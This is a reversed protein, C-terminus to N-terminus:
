TDIPACKEKLWAQEDSNLQPSLMEYVKHHYDNLWTVERDDLLKRDILTKDIPFLTITDFELFGEDESEIAVILNEIRIGYQGEKYYGPENSTVMGAVIPCKSRPSVAPGIGQPDEHVNLFFGVGHGTGHLFNLGHEWLHQRALLDLQVGSTGKPFKAKALGIHGKLVLTNNTREEESPESFSVTRTIDTTGDLYQGGSDLLLVGNNEIDTCTDAEPKYHVIAGNGRYGVIADFSEGKYGEQEARFEALKMALDYESVKNEKLTAELWRYMKTLAVGDKVMVERFHSLEIDNKVAKMIRSITDGKIINKANIAKYLVSNCSAPDVLISGSEELENLDKVIDEYPAISIGDSELEEKIATTLKKPNIYLISKDHSIITYAICVPNCKVDNGRINYIWAIDDLTTVIHHDVKKDSMVKRIDNIKEKRDKGAYVTEHIFIKHDPISPRDKWINSMFDGSSKLTIKNEAFQKNLYDVQKKSFVWGDIGVVAGEKLHEKLYNVHHAVQRDIVKHLVFESDKLQNEASIFYRSDTWIGAHDQTVVAIGASGTFGSIWARSLWHDSVYESQHPDSSPIIYADVGQEMMSKRLLILKDDINM